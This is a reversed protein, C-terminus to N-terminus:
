MAIRGAPHAGDWSKRAVRGHGQSWCFDAGSTGSLCYAKARISVKQNKTRMNRVRRFLWEQSTQGWAFLKRLNEPARAAADAIVSSEKTLARLVVSDSPRTFFVVSYRM